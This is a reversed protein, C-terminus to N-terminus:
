KEEGKYHIFAKDVCKSVDDAAKHIIDKWGGIGGFVGGSLINSTPIIALREGITDGGSGTKIKCISASIHISSDFDRSVQGLFYRGAANGPKYSLIKIVIVYKNKNSDDIYANMNKLQQIMRDRLIDGVQIQTKGNDDYVTTGIVSVDFMAPSTIKETANKDVIVSIDPSILACASLLICVLFLISVSVGRM